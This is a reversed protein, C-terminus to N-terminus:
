GPQIDILITIPILSLSSVVCLPLTSERDHVKWKVLENDKIATKFCGHVSWINNDIVNVVQNFEAILDTNYIESTSFFSVKLPHIVAV